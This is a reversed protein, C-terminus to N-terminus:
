ATKRQEAMMAIGETYGLLEHRQAENLKPYAKEISEMIKQKKDSMKRVEQQMTKWETYVRGFFSIIAQYILITGTRKKHIQIIMEADGGATLM